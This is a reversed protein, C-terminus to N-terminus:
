GVYIPLPVKSLTSNLFDAEQNQKELQRTRSVEALTERLELILKEKEAQAETRLTAGDLTITEGPIPITGYKSRVNGLTEKALAAAYRFVWQKGIGNVRSYIPRDYPVNSYDTVVGGISNGNGDYLIPSNRDDEVIYRFHLKTNDRPIPFIRLKNNIVEFSYASKRIQDNFEIAQLRLVDASIPMMLFAIGPSFNGFGMQDMLSMMGTGTGAYPDFYRVIGPPAYHYIQKIEIRKGSESVNGWLAQLDYDQQEATIDISGTKWDVNGGSGAETGYQQAIRISGAMSPRTLNYELNSGTSSGELFQYNDRIKFQYVQSGYETIAEEFATYFNAAQLEIDVLPYGLRTAAYKAVRDADQQFYYDHDYFGFPTEGPFFSSSGPWVPVSAM